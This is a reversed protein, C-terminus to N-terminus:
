LVFLVPRSQAVAEVIVRRADVLFRSVAPPLPTQTQVVTEIAAVIGQALEAEIWDEEYDDLLASCRSNIERFLGISWLEEFVGDDPIQLVCVNTCETIDNNRLSLEAEVDLPIVIGRRYLESNQM